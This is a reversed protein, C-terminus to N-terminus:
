YPRTPESIHILSLASVESESLAETLPSSLIEQGVSVSRGGSWCDGGSGEDSVSVTWAKQHGFVMLDLNDSGTDLEMMSVVHGIESESLSSMIPLGNEMSICHVGLNTGIVLFDSNGGPSWRVMSTMEVGSRLNHLSSIEGFPDLTTIGYKSGVIIRQQESDKIMTHVAADVM